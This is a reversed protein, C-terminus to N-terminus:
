FHKEGSSNGYFSSVPMNNKINKQLKVVCQKILRHTFWCEM